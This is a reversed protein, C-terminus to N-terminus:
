FRFVSALLVDILLKWPMAILGICLRDLVTPLSDVADDVDRGEEEGDRAWDGLTM